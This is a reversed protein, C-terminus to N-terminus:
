HQQQRKNYKVAGLKRSEGFPQQVRRIGETSELCSCPYVDMCLNTWITVQVWLNNWDYVRAMKVAMNEPSRPNASQGMLAGTGNIVLSHLVDKQSLHLGGKDDWLQQHIHLDM